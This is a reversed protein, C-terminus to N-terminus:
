DEDKVVLLQRAVVERKGSPHEVTVTEHTKFKTKMKIRPIAEVVIKVPKGFLTYKM